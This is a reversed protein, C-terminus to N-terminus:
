KKPKEPQSSRYLNMLEACLQFANEQEQAEKPSNKKKWYANTCIIIQQESKDYFFFLRCNCSTNKFEYGGRKKKDGRILDPNRHVQNSGGYRIARLLKEYEKEHTSQWAKLEELVPAKISGDRQQQALCRIKWRSQERETLGPIEVLACGCTLRQTSTIRKGKKPM